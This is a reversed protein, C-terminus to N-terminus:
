SPRLLRWASRLRCFPAGCPVAARDIVECRICTDGSGDGDIWGDLREGCLAVEERCCVLHEVDDDGTGSLAEEIEPVHVLLPNM